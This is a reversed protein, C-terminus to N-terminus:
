TDWAFIGSEQLDVERTNCVPTRVQLMKMEKEMDDIMANAEALIEYPQRCKFQYFRM